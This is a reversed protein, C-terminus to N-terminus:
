DVLSPMYSIFSVVPIVNAEVASWSQLRQSVLLITRCLLYLQHLYSLLNHQSASTALVFVKRHLGIEFGRHSSSFYMPPHKLKLPDHQTCQLIYLSCSHFKFIQISHSAVAVSLSWRAGEIDFFKPETADDAWVFRYLFTDCPNYYCYFYLTTLVLLKDLLIRWSQWLRRYVSDHGLIWSITWRRAIPQIRIWAHHFSNICRVVRYIRSLCAGGRWRAYLVLVM